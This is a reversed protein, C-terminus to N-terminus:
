VWAGYPSPSWGSCAVALPIWVGTPGTTVTCYSHFHQFILVANVAHNIERRMETEASHEFWQSGGGVERLEPPLALVFATSLETAM